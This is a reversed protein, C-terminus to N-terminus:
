KRKQHQMIRKYIEKKHYINIGADKTKYINIPFSSRNFSEDNKFMFTTNLHEKSIYKHFNYKVARKFYIKRYYRAIQPM